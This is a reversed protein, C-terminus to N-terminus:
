LALMTKRHKSSSGAVSISVRYYNHSPRPCPHISPRAERSCQPRKDAHINYYVRQKAYRAASRIIAPDDDLEASHTPVM